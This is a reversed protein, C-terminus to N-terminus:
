GYVTYKLLLSPRHVVTPSIQKRGIRQLNAPIIDHNRVPLLRDLPNKTTRFNQVQVQVRGHRAVFVCPHPQNPVKVGYM